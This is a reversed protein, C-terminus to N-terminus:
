WAAALEKRHDRLFAPVETPQIVAARILSDFHSTLVRIHETTNFVFYMQGVYVVARLPGFVTYPTSYHTRADFLFVRLSPYLEEVLEAMHDLQEIRDKASFDRWLGEGRALVEIDQYAGCIEMDTEPLRVYELRDDRATLAQEITRAVFDRYEYRVAADTKVVYPLTVDVYRLRYGAAETRWRSFEEDATEFSTPMVQVSEHLIDAGLKAQQSLGLLWDLSVKLTMAIAAVTDARPLRDEDSSLLQSLTSRDIGVREALRSRNLGTREMAEALRARFMRATDRRDM